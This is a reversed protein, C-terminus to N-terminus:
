LKLGALWFLVKEEKELHGNVQEQLAEFCRQLEGSRSQGAGCETSSRRFAEFTRRISRHELRMQSVPSDRGLKRGLPKYLGREEHNFHTRLQSELINVLERLRDTSSPRSTITRLLKLQRTISRHEERLTAIRDGARDAM